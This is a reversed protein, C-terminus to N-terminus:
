VLRSKKLPPSTVEEDECCSGPRADGVRSCACSSAYSETPATEILMVMPNFDSCGEVPNADEAVQM